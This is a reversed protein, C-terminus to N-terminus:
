GISDKLWNWYHAIGDDLSTEAKWSFAKRTRKMDLVVEQIDFDRKHNYKINPKMGTIHSIINIVQNISYGKGSGANFIGTKNSSGAIRCLLALDKAYIYDRIVSGDGWVTLHKNNIIKNMFTSIVGQVGIHGQRPGYANSARLIIPQLEYLQEYMLLYNEIANKVIGYSCIPQLRHEESIPFTHPNGYVTGGSSLYVIHRVKKKTMMKLLQLTGILNSQIDNIPDMNSTSPVTTSILHYIVEIDELSEALLFSDNFSGIRYDVNKKPLRFKEPLRDLVRVTQGDNLLTDVVHSGIFGNGGLVLVQM